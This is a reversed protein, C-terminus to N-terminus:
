CCLFAKVRKDASLPLWYITIKSVLIEYKFKVELAWVLASMISNVVECMAM